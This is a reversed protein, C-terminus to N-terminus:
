MINRKDDATEEIRKWITGDSDIEAKQNPVSVVKLVSLSGYTDDRKCYIDSWQDINDIDPFEEISSEIIASNGDSSQPDTQRELLKGDNDYLEQM